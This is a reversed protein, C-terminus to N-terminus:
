TVVLWVVGKALHSKLREMVVGFTYESRLVDDPGDGDVDGVADGVAICGKLEEASNAAHIRIGSRNPVNCVEPTIRQLRHSWSLVVPYTGLPIAVSERELTYCLHADGDVLVGLISEQRCWRRTLTM